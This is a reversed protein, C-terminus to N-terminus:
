NNSANMNSIYLKIKKTEKAVPLTEIRNGSLNVEHRLNYINKPLNTIINDSLDLYEIQFANGLTPPCKKIQNGKFSCIKLNSAKPLTRPLTKIANHSADFELLFALKTFITGPIGM